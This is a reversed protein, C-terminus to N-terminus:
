PLLVIFATHWLAKDFYDSFRALFLSACRLGKFEVFLDEHFIKVISEIRQHLAETFHRKHRAAHCDTKYILASVALHGEVEFASKSGKNSIQITIALIQMRHHMNFLLDLIDTDLGGNLICIGIRFRHVRKSVGDIGNVTPCM